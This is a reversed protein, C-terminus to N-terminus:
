LGIIFGSSTRIIRSNSNAQAPRTILRGASRGTSQQRNRNYAAMAKLGAKGQPGVIDARADSKVSYLEFLALDAIIQRFELPVLPADSGIGTLDAPRQLYDYEVAFFQNSQTSGYRNFRVKTETVLAFRDPVGSAVTLLPFDRELAKLDCGEIEAIGSGQVRMPAILRLVDAALPYELNILTCPYTGTPFGCPISITASTGGQSHTTIRLVDPFGSTQIFWGQVGITGTSLSPPASFAINTFGQTVSISLGAVVPDLNFAGPPDKKLWLWPEDLVPVYEGGGIWIARYARNVYDLAVSNFDSSTDTPEGARFLVDNVIEATTNLM